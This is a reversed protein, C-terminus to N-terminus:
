INVYFNTKLNMYFDPLVKCQLSNFCLNLPQFRFTNSKEDSKSHRNMNKKSKSELGSDNEPAGGNGEFLEGEEHSTNYEVVKHEDNKSGGVATEKGYLPSPSKLGALCAIGHLQTL